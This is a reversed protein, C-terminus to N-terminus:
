QDTDRFASVLWQNSIPCPRSQGCVTLEGVDTINGECRIDGEIPRVAAHGLTPSHGSQAALRESRFTQVRKSRLAGLALAAHLTKSPSIRAM